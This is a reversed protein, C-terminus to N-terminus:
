AEGRVLPTRLVRCVEAMVADLTTGAFYFGVDEARVCGNLRRLASEIRVGANNVDFTAVVAGPAPPALNLAARNKSVWGDFVKRQYAAIEDRDRDAGGSDGGNKVGLSFLDFLLAEEIREARATM